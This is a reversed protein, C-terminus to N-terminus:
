SGVDKDKNERFDDENIGDIKAVLSQFHGRLRRQYYWGIYTILLMFVTASIGVPLWFRQAMKVSVLDAGGM